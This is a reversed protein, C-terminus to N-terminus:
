GDNRPIIANRTARLIYPLIYSFGREHFFLFYNSFLTHRQFLSIVRCFADLSICLTLMLRGLKYYINDIARM